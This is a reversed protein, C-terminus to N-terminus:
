ARKLLRTDLKSTCLEVSNKGIIKIGFLGDKEIARIIKYEPTHLTTGMFSIGGYLKKGKFNLGELEKQIKAKPHTLELNSFNKITKNNFTHVESETVTTKAEIVVIADEGVALVDIEGEVSENTKPNKKNLNKFRIGRFVNEKEIHIEFYREMFWPLLSATISEAIKGMRSTEKEAVERIIKRHKDQEYYKEIFRDFVQFVAAQFAETAMINVNEEKRSQDNKKGM